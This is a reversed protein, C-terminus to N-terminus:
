TNLWLEFEADSVGDPNLVPEGNNGGTQLFEDHLDDLCDECTLILGDEAHREGVYIVADCEQCLGIFITWHPTRPEFIKITM